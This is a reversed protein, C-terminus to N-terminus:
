HERHINDLFRPFGVLVDTMTFLKVIMLTLRYHFRVARLFVSFYAESTFM